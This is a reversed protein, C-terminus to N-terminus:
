WLPGWLSVLAIGFTAHCTTAVVAREVSTFSAALKQPSSLSFSHQQLCQFLFTLTRQANGLAFVVLLLHGIQLAAFAIASSLIDECKTQVPNPPHFFGINCNLFGMVRDNSFIM